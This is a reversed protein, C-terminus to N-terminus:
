GPGPRASTCCSRASLSAPGRLSHPALGCVSSLCSRCQAVSLVAPRVSALNAKYLHLLQTLENLLGECRIHRWSALAECLESWADLAAEPNLRLLAALGLFAHEKEVDDRISRLAGCWAACFHGLHPALAAPCIWAM